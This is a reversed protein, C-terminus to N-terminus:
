SVSMGNLCEHLEDLAARTGDDELDVVGAQLLRTLQRAFYQPSNANMTANVDQQGQTLKRGHWPKSLAPKLPLPRGNKDMASRDVTIKALKDAPMHLAGAVKETEIGLRAGVHACHIRDLMSLNAGHSTNAEMAELFFSEDSEYTKLNVTISSAKGFVRIHAKVRHFGDNVRMTKACVVPAPIKEGSRMADALRDVNGASSARPALEYDLILDAVKVKKRM